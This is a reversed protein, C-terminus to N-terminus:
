DIRKGEQLMFFCPEFLEITLLQHRGHPPLPCVQWLESALLDLM